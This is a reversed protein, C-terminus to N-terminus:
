SKRLCISVLCIDCNTFLGKLMPTLNTFLVNESFYDLTETFFIRAEIVKFGSYFMQVPVNEYYIICTAARLILYYRKSKVNTQYVLSLSKSRVRRSSYGSRIHFPMNLILFYM